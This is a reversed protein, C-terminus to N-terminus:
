GLEDLARQLFDPPRLIPIGAYEKLRLLDKDFPIKCDSRAERM